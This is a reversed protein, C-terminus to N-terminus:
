EDEREGPKGRGGRAAVALTEGDEDAPLGAGVARDDDGVVLVVPAVDDDVQALDLGAIVARGPLDVQTMAGEVSVSPRVFPKRQISAVVWSNASLKM